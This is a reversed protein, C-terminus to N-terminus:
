VCVFGHLNVNSGSGACVIECLTLMGVVVGFCNLEICIVMRARDALVCLDQVFLAMESYIQNSRMCVLLM